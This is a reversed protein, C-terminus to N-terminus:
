RRALKVSVGSVNQSIRLRIQLEPDIGVFDKEGELTQGDELIQDESLLLIESLLGIMDRDAAEMM